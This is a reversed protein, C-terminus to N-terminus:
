CVRKLLDIMKECDEEVLTSSTVHIEIIKSGLYDFISENNTSDNGKYCM